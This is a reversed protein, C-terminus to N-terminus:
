QSIYLNGDPDKIEAKIYDVYSSIPESCDWGMVFVELNNRADYRVEVLNWHESKNDYTIKKLKKKYSYLLPKAWYLGPKLNEM